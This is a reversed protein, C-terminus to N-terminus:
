DLMSRHMSLYYNDIHRVRNRAFAFELIFAYRIVEM